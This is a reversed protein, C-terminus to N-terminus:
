PWNWRHLRQFIYIISIKCLFISVFLAFLIMLIVFAVHAYQETFSNKSFLVGIWGLWGGPNYKAENFLGTSYSHPSFFDRPFSALISLYASRYLNSFWPLWEKYVLINQRYNPPKETFELRKRWGIELM